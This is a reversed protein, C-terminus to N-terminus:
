PIMPTEVNYPSQEPVDPVQELVEPEQQKGELLELRSYVAAFCDQTQQGLNSIRVINKCHWWVLIVAFIINLGLLTGVVEVEWDGSSMFIIVFLTM